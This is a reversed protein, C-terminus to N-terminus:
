AGKEEIIENSLEDAVPVDGPSAELIAVLAELGTEMARKVQKNKLDASMLTIIRKLSDMGLRNTLGKDPLLVIQREFQSVFLLIGTRNATAFLERDFFVSVAYQRTETEARSASLFLRAFGPVVVTLLAFFAGLVLIAAISILVLANSIWGPMLVNFLFVLLGAISTFLAFAKWPIEPFSDSRQVVALVIQSKTRQEAQQILQDLQAREQDTLIQKM